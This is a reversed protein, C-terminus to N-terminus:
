DSFYSAGVRLLLPLHKNKNLSTFDPARVPANHFNFLINNDFKGPVFLESLVKNAVKTIILWNFM